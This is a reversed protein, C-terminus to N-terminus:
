LGYSAKLEGFEQSKTFGYVLTDRNEKGSRLREVWDSFGQPDPQRNLFTQYMRLVFEEDSLNQELLERSHLFGDSAIQEITKEGTLYVRCWDELGDEDFRRGLMKTYLRAIFGTAGPNRDRWETVDVSGRIVNYKDCLQTFEKSEAFGRYVYLRSVGNELQGLWDEMGAKDGDRDFMTQYLINLYEQDSYKKEKFEDSFFFGQAVEAASKTQSELQEVWDNLGKEDYKRGLCVIYLREVFSVM